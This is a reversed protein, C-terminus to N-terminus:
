SRCSPVSKLTEWFIICKHLYRGALFHVYRPCRWDLQAAQKLDLHDVHVSNPAHSQWVCPKQLVRYIAFTQAGFGGRRDACSTRAVHRLEGNLQLEFLDVVHVHVFRAQVSRGVCAAFSRRQHSVIAREDAYSCECCGFISRCLRFLPQHKAMLVLSRPRFNHVPTTPTRPWWNRRHPDATAKQDHRAISNVLKNSICVNNNLFISTQLQVAIHNDIRGNTREVATCVRIANAPILLVPVRRVSRPLWYCAQSFQHQKKQM